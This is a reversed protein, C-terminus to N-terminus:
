GCKTLFPPSGAAAPAAPAPADCNVPLGADFTGPAHQKVFGGAAPSIEARGRGQTYTGLTFGDAPNDALVRAKSAAAWKEWRAAQGDMTVRWLTQPKSEWLLLVHQNASASWTVGVVGCGAAKIHAQLHRVQDAATFPAPPTLKSWCAAPAANTQGIMALVILVALV